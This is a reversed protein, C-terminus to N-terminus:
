EKGALERLIREDLTITVGCQETGAGVYGPYHEDHLALHVTHQDVGLDLLYRERDKSWKDWDLSFRFLEQQSALLPQLRDLEETTYFETPDRDLKLGNCVRCLSVLNGPVLHGGLAMPIHHDICLHPPAGIEQALKEPM